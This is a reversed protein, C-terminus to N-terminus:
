FNVDDRGIRLEVTKVSAQGPIRIYGTVNQGRAFRHEVLDQVSDPSIKPVPRAHLTIHHTIMGLTPAEVSATTAGDFPSPFPKLHQRYFSNSSIPKSPLAWNTWVILPRLAIRIRELATIVHQLSNTIATGNLQEMTFRDPWYFSSISDVAVLGIGDDPFHSAHHAPLGALSVALQSSSNPQFIHLKSIAKKALMNITQGAPM